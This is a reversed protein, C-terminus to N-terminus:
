DGTETSEDAEGTLNIESLRKKVNTSPLYLVRRRYVAGAGAKDLTDAARANLSFRFTGVKPLEVSHGNMLFNEFEKVVACMAKYLEGEGIQSNAAARRLLEEKDIKTYTVSRTLYASKKMAAMRQWKAKLVIKAM